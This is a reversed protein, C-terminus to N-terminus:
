VIKLVQKISKVIHEEKPLEGESIVIDNVIVAPSRLSGYKELTMRSILNIHQVETSNSLNLNHVAKEVLERTKKCRTCPTEPGAIYIINKEMDNGEDFM